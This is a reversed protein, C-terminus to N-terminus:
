DGIKGKPRLALQSQTLGHRDRPYKGIAFKM